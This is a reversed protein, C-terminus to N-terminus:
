TYNHICMVEQMFFIYSYVRTLKIRSLRKSQRLQPKKSLRLNHQQESNLGEPSEDSLIKDETKVPSEESLIKSSEECESPSEVCMVEHEDLVQSMRSSRKHNRLRRNRFRRKGSKSARDVLISNGIHPAEKKREDESAYDSELDDDLDMSFNTCSYSEAVPWYSTPTLFQVTVPRKQSTVNVSSCKPISTLFHQTSLDSCSKTWSEPESKEPESKEEAPSTLCYSHEERIQNLKERLIHDATQRETSEPPTHIQQNPHADASNQRNMRPDRFSHVESHPVYQHSQDHFGHRPFRRPGPYPLLSPGNPRLSPRYNHFRVPRRARYSPSWPRVSHPQPLVNRQPHGPM